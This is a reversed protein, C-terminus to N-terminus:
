HLVMAVRNAKSGSIRTRADEVARRVRFMTADHPSHRVEFGFARALGLMAENGRLVDGVFQTMGADRASEILEELLFRGLGRGQWEDAVVLALEGTEGDEVAYQALAVIRCEGAGDALAVLVRDLERAPHTLRKLVGPALERIPAFFRFQRSEDSLGRVFAQIAAGDTPRVHRVRVGRSNGTRRPREAGSATEITSQDMTM